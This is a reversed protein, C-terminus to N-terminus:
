TDKPSFPLPAKAGLAALISKLVDDIDFPKFIVTVADPLEPLTAPSAVTSCIIPLRNTAPDAQLQAVLDAGIPHHRFIVDMVIIDPLLQKIAALNLLPTSMTVNFHEDHLLSGYINLIDLSEDMFLVHPSALPELASIGEDQPITPENAKWSRIEGHSDSGMLVQEV